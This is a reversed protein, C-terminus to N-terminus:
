EKGRESPIPLLFHLLIGSPQSFPCPPSVRRNCDCAFSLSWKPFCFWNLTFLAVVLQGVSDPYSLSSYSQIKFEGDKEEEQGPSGCPQTERMRSREFGSSGWVLPIQQAPNEGSSYTIASARIPAAKALPPDLKSSPFSRVPAM